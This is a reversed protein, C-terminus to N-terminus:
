ALRSVRRPMKSQHKYNLKSPDKWGTCCRAANIRWVYNEAVFRPQDVGVLDM